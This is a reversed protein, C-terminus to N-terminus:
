EAEVSSLALSTVARLMEDTTLATGISHFSVSCIWWAVWQLVLGVDHYVDEAKAM